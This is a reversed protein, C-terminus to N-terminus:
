HYTAERVGATTTYGNPWVYEVRWGNEWDKGDIRIEIQKGVVALSPPLWAVMRRGNANVLDCQIQKM